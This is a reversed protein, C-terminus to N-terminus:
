FDVIIRSGYVGLTHTTIQMNKPGLFTVFVIKFYSCNNNNILLCSAKPIKRNSFASQLLIRSINYNSFCIAEGITKPLKGLSNPAIAQVIDELTMLDPPNQEIYLNVM